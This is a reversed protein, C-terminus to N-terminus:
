FREQLAELRARVTGDYVDSGVQVRLGGVLGPEQQFVFDLGPGYLRELKQQVSTQLVPSMATASSLTAQRRQLELRVLRQFHLLVRLYQRPKREVLERVAARVRGEELRGEVLCCRWLRKAERQAKRPIKM